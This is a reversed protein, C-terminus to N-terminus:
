VAILGEDCCDTFIPVRVCPCPVTVDVKGVPLMKFERALSIKLRRGFRFVVHTSEGAVANIILQTPLCSIANIAPQRSLLHRPFRRRASVTAASYPFNLPKPPVSAGFFSKSVPCDPTKAAGPKTTLEASRNTGRENELQPM